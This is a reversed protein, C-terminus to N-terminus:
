PMNTRILYLVEFNTFVGSFTPKRYVSTTFKNNERVIKIDLFSLSNNMETESTFKINAHQLNLYYKFKEIQNINQFLLFTDDVYRKYIVPRFEPPCKELLLIEHVCLFINAFTPGLPSGMAVGDHQEFYENDFLIFSETMTVTLMERFSDKSLGDIFNKDEFLKQVCLDITEQLPIKTFLSEIDFSAMILNTNFHKLEECFSFSDKITYQNYTLPELLPVFFKALKYTPTGIASLIPRFPPVGDVISKHIKCLGYLIGPKSGTPYLEKYVKDSIEQKEKLRKLLEVIKNEMHILHNLVKSDDIQIKKFKSTDALTLKMKSIYDKRNLLVM